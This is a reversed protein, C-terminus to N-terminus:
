ATLDPYGFIGFLDRASGFRKSCKSCHFVVDPDAGVGGDVWHGVGFLEDLTKESDLRSRGFVVVAIEKSSCDPCVQKKASNRRWAALQRTTETIENQMPGTRALTYRRENPLDM